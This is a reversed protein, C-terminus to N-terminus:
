LQTLSISSYDQLYETATIFTIEVRTICPEQLLSPYAESADNETSAQKRLNRLPLLTISSENHVNSTLEFLFIGRHLEALMVGKAM